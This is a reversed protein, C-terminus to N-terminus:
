GTIDGLLAGFRALIAKAEVVEASSGVCDTVNLVWTPKRRTINSQGKSCKSSGVMPQLAQKHTHMNRPIATM